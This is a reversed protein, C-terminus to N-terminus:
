SNNEYPTVPHKRFHNILLRHVIPCNERRQRNLLEEARMEWM